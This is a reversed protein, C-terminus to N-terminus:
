NIQIKNWSTLKTKKSIEKDERIWTVKVKADPKLLGVFSTLSIASTIARNNIKTILDGKKLGISSAPSNRQVSMILAGQRDHRKQMNPNLDRIQVGLYGRQTEGYDVLDNTIRKIM